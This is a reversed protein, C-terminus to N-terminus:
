NKWRLTEGGNWAIGSVLWCCVLTVLRLYSSFVMWSSQRLNSFCNLNEPILLLFFDCKYLPLSNNKVFDWLWLGNFGDLNLDGLNEIALGFMSNKPGDIRTKTAENWNGDHNIYVYVAGGIDGHRVFFQPAGVVLDQWRYVLLLFSWNLM